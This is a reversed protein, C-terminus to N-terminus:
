GKLRFCGTGGDAENETSVRRFELDETGQIELFAFEPVKLSPHISILRLHKISSYSEALSSLFDVSVQCTSRTGSATFANGGTLTLLRFFSTFQQQRWIGECWAVRKVKGDKGDEVPSPVTRGSSEPDSHL